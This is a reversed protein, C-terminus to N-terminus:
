RRTLGAEDTLSLWRSVHFHTELTELMSFIDDVTRPPSTVLRDRERLGAFDIDSISPEAERMQEIFAQAFMGYACATPHMDDLSILGGRRVNGAPDIGLPELTLDEIATPLGDFVAGDGTSRGALGDLLGALDVVFWGREEAVRRVVRNYADVRQDIMDFQSATLKRDRTPDFGGPDVWNYTWADGIQQLLPLVTVRPVTALYVNTAGISEVEGALQEYEAAFATETWLTHDTGPGPSYAGTERVELELVARLCSNAGLAVILHDIAGDRECIARATSIQTEDQRGALQAPNLVERAIRLKGHSPTALFEDRDRGIVADCRAPTTTYADCVRFNWVALNHHLVNDRPEAGQGREWYDEVEDLMSAIDAVAGVWEFLNIDDGYEAELRRAMQELNFPLGGAGSFDPKVFQEDDLGLCEAILAPYSLDTRHVAFSQAGQTLSDGIAVLKAM